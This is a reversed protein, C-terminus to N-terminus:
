SLSVSVLVYAPVHTAHHRDSCVRVDTPFLADLVMEFHKAQDLSGTPRVAEGQVLRHAHPQVQQTESQSRPPHESTALVVRHGSFLPHTAALLCARQFTCAHAMGTDSIPACSSSLPAPPVSDSAQSDGCGAVVFCVVCLAGDCVRM